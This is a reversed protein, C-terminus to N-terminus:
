LGCSARARDYGRQYIGKDKRTQCEDWIADVMWHYDSKPNNNAFASMWIMQEAEDELAKDDKKAIKALYDSKPRGYNDNGVYRFTCGKPVDLQIPINTEMIGNYVDNWEGNPVKEWGNSKMWGYLQDLHNFVPSVAVKPDDDVFVFDGVEGSKSDVCQICYKGKIM